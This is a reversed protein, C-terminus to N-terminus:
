LVQLGVTRLAGVCAWRDADDAVTEVVQAPWQESRQLEYAMSIIGMRLRTASVPM